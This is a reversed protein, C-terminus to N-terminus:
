EAPNRTIATGIDGQLTFPSHHRVFWCALLNLVAVQATYENSNFSVSEAHTAFRNILGLCGTKQLDQGALNSLIISVSNVISTIALRKVHKHHM